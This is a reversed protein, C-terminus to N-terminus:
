VSLNKGSCSTRKRATLSPTSLACPSFSNAGNRLMIFSHYWESMINIFPAFELSEPNNSDISNGIAIFRVGKQRFLEMYMGVQVHDRGLRSMDKVCLFSVNGAEVEVILAQWQERDFHTGITGDDAYHKINAFEQKSAFDELIQRQNQISLSDGDLNDERSLRSDLAVIPQKASATQRM